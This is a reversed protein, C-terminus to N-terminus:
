VLQKRSKKFKKRWITLSPCQKNLINNSAMFIKFLVQFDNLYPISIHFVLNYINSLIYQCAHEFLLNCVGVVMSPWHYWYTVMTVLYSLSVRKFFWWTTSVVSICTYTAISKYRFIIFELYWFVYIHASLLASIQDSIVHTSILISYSGTSLLVCYFIIICLM